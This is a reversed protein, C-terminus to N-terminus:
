QDGRPHESKARLRQRERRQAMYKRMYERKTERRASQTSSYSCERSCYRQQGREFVFIRPCQRCRRFQFPQNVLVDRLVDQWEARRIVPVSYAHVESVIGDRVIWRPKARLVPPSVERGDLLGMLLERVERHMAPLEKAIQARIGQRIRGLIGLIRRGERSRMFRRRADPDLQEHHSPMWALTGDARVLGLSSEFADVLALRDAESLGDIREASALSAFFHAARKRDIAVEVRSSQTMRQTLWM